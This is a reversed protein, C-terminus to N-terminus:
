TVYDIVILNIGFLDRKFESFAFKGIRFGVGRYNRAVSFRVM